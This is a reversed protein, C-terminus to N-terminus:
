KHKGEPPTTFKNKGLEIRLAVGINELTYPKRVYQGAGLKLAEKVRKTESYGSTIIASLDPKIKKINKYTDLGDMGSAMIMDLIVLDPSHNTVHDLAANGDACTHVRYGLKSLLSFAINRQEEEDDVVLITEGKGMYNSLEVHEKKVVRKERTSPFFLEFRTGQNRASHIVMNGKHDIVTGWVVTMGLGTGSRGMAKKTYFPEFIKKIVRGPIGIGQDQIDLVVYNGKQLTGDYAKQPKDLRRNFTSIAVTGGKPMSEVANSVLNMVAKTLHIPSGKMNSLRNYLEIRFNIGPHNSILKGFEPSDLYDTIVRNLNVVEKGPVGRRALTLLDEVIAAAKQGSTKITELLPRLGSNEDLRSLILDPYAVIASLINNLDHAVGGALQGVVEMKESVSLKEELKRKEEEAQKLQTIDIIIGRTGCIRGNKIIPASHIVVPFSSGDKRRIHYEVGGIKKRRLIKKINKVLRSRDKRVFMTIAKFGSQFDDRNYGSLEYGSRSLFTVNGQLDAEYVPQPLLDALERFRRENERASNEMQKLEAIIEELELNKEEISRNSRIRIYEFFSATITIIIYIAAFRVMFEVPYTQHYLFPAPMLLFLLVIMFFTFIFVLGRGIGFIFVLFLPLSFSWLHGSNEIGGTIFLILFLVTMMFSSVAGALMYRKTKRMHLFLYIIIVASISELTGLWVDNRIYSGIGFIVLMPIGISFMINLLVIKQLTALELNEGAGSTYLDRMLKKITEIPKKMMPMSIFVPKLNGNIRSYHYRIEYFIDFHPSQDCISNSSIGM